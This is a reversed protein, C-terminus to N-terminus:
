NNKQLEELLHKKIVEIRKDYVKKLIIARNEDERRLVDITREKYSINEQLKKITNLLLEFIKKTCDVAEKQKNKDLTIEKQKTEDLFIEKVKLIDENNGILSKVSDYSRNISSSLYLLLDKFIEIGENQPKKMDKYKRKLEEIQQELSQKMNCFEEEHQNQMDNIATQHQTRMNNIVQNHQSNLNAIENRLNTLEQNRLNDDEQSNNYSDQLLKSQSKNQLLYYTALASIGGGILATLKSRSLYYFVGIGVLGVGVISSSSTTTMSPKNFIFDENFDNYDSCNVNFSLTTILLSNTLLKHM